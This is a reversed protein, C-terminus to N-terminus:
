QLQALARAMFLPQHQICETITQALFVTLANVQGYDHGPICRHILDWSFAGDTDPPVVLALKGGGKTFAWSHPQHARVPVQGIPRRHAIGVM